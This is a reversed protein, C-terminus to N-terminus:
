STKWIIGVSFLFIGKNETHTWYDSKLYFGFGRSIYIPLTLGMVLSHFRKIEETKDKNTFMRMGYGAHLSLDFPHPIQYFRYGIELSFGLSSYNNYGINNLPELGMISIALETHKGTFICELGVDSGEGFVYGFGVQSEPKSRRKRSKHTGATVTGRSENIPNHPIAVIKIRINGILKEREALADWIIKKNNGAKQNHGVAGSVKKLPNGWSQGNDTSCYVQINFNQKGELDYYIHIQKGAQEFHINSVKQSFASATFFLLLSLITPKLRM